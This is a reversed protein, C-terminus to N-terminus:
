KEELIAYVPLMYACGTRIAIAMQEVMAAWVPPSSVRTRYGTLASRRIWAGGIGSPAKKMHTETRIRERAQRLGSM